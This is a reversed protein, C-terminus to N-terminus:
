SPLNPKNRPKWLGRETLQAAFEKKYREFTSKAIGHHALIEGLKLREGKPKSKNFQIDMLVACVKSYRADKATSLKIASNRNYQYMDLVEFEGSFKGRLYETVRGDPVFVVCEMINSPDFKNRLHSRLIAQYVPELYRELFACYILREAPIGLDVSAARLLKIEDNSLNAAAMVAVKRIHRMSNIGHVQTSVEHIRKESKIAEIKANEYIARTEDSLFKLDDNNLCLIFDSGFLKLTSLILDDRVSKESKCNALADCVRMNKLERSIIEGEGNGLYQVVKVPHEHKTDARIGNIEDIYQFSYNFKHEALLGFLSDRINAGLIILEKSHHLVHRVGRANIAQFLHSNGGSYYTVSYDNRLCKLLSIYEESVYNDNGSEHEKLIGDVKFLTVSDDKLTVKVCKEKEGRKTTHYIVEKCNCFKLVQKIHHNSVKMSTLSVSSTPCEDVIVRGNRLLLANDENFLSDHTIFVVGNFMGLKFEEYLLHLSDRVSIVSSTDIRRAQITQYIGFKHKALEDLYNSHSQESLRITPSAIITMTKDGGKAKLTALARLMESTKGLGCLMELVKAIQTKNAPESLNIEIENM